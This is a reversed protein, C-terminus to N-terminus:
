ALIEELKNKLSKFDSTKTVYKEAGFKFANRKDLPNDSTSFIIVPIKNLQPDNKISKLCEFGNILPMNIDLFVLDPQPSLKLLALGDNCNSATICEIGYMVENIADIFILQDDEDDDILLIKRHKM